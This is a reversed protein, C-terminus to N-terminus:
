SSLIVVKQMCKSDLVFQTLLCKLQYLLIMLLAPRQTSPTQPAPARTINNSHDPPMIPMDLQLAQETLIGDAIGIVQVGTKKLVKVLWALDILEVSEVIVPLGQKLMPNELTLRTLEEVIEQSNTSQVRLRSLTLVRGMLRLAKTEEMSM